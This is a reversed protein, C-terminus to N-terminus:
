AARGLGFTSLRQCSGSVFYVEFCDLGGRYPVIGDCTNGGAALLAGKDLQVLGAVAMDFVAVDRSSSFRLSYTKDPSSTTRKDHREATGYSIYQDQSRYGAKSYAKRNSEKQWVISQEIGEVFQRQQRSAEKGRGGAFECAAQSTSAQIQRQREQSPLTKYQWISALNGASVAFPRRYSDAAPIRREFICSCFCDIAPGNRANKSCHYIRASVQKERGFGYSAM